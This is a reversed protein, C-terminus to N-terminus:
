WFKALLTINQIAAAYLVSGYADQVLEYNDLIVHYIIDNTTDCWM